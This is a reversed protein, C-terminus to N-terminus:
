ENCGGCGCVVFQCDREPEDPEPCGGCACIPNHCDRINTEIM